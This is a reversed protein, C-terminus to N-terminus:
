FLDTLKTLTAATHLEGPKQKNPLSSDTDLFSQSLRSPSHSFQSLQRSSQQAM